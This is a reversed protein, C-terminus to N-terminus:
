RRVKTSKMSMQDHLYFRQDNAYMSSFPSITKEARNQTMNMRKPIIIYPQHVTRQDVFHPNLTTCYNSPQVMNWAQNGRRVIIPIHNMNQM